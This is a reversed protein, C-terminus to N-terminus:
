EGESKSPILPSGQRKLADIEEVAKKAHQGRNKPNPHTVAIWAGLGGTSALTRWFKAAHEYSYGARAVLFIGLRDAQREFDRLVNGSGTWTAALGTSLHRDKIAQNHGMINHALEHAMVMALDDDKPFAIVLRGYVQVVNGNSNANLQNSTAMEFRSACAAVPTLSVSHQLEGRQVMLLVPEGIAVSELRTMAKDTESYDGKTASGDAGPALIPQGNISIISDNPRIGAQWAPSERAVALAGPAAPVFAFTAIAAQRWKGDYQSATHLSIGTAAYRSPCLELNRTALKWGIDAVRQDLVQLDSLQASKNSLAGPKDQVEGLAPACLGLAVTGACILLSETLRNKVHLSM